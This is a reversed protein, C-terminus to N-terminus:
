RMMGLVLSKLLAGILHQPHVVSLNPFPEEPIPVDLFECLPDWGMKVNFVLLKERPVNSQVDKNHAAYVDPGLTNTGALRMWRRTIAHNLILNSRLFPIPYTLWEYRKTLQAGITNSFSKWWAEHSDRVSLIVKASPYLAMLDKYIDCCPSDLTALYGSM